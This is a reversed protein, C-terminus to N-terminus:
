ERNCDEWVKAINKIITEVGKKASRLSSYEAIKIANFFVDCFEGYEDILFSNKRDIKFKYTKIGNNNEVLQWKVRKM